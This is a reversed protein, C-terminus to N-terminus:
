LVMVFFFGNCNFNSKASHVRSMIALSILILNPTTKLALETPRSSPLEADGSLLGQVARLLTVLGQHLLPELLFVRLDFGQRLPFFGLNEKAIGSVHAAIM